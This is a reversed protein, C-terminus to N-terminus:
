LIYELSQSVPYISDVIASVIDKLEYRKLSICNQNSTDTNPRHTHTTPFSSNYYYVLFIAKDIM